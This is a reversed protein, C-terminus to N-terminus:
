NLPVDFKAYVLNDTPIQLAGNQAVGYNVYRYGVDLLINSNPLVFKAGAGTRWGSAFSQEQAGFAAYLTMLDAAIGSPLAPPTQAGFLQSLSGGVQIEQYGLIGNPNTNIGNVATATNLQYGVGAEFGLLFTGNWTMWGVDGFPIAGGAFVSGSLGNGIIDANTGIGALGGGAYFKNPCSLVTCPTTVKAAKPAAKAPLDAAYAATSVLLAALFAFRRM